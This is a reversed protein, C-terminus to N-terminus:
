CWRRCCKEHLGQTSCGSGEETESELIYPKNKHSLFHQWRRSCCCTGDRWGARSFPLWGGRAPQTATRAFTRRGAGRACVRHGHVYTAERAEDGRPSHTTTFSSVRAPPPRTGHERAESKPPHRGDVVETRFAQADISAPRCFCAKQAAAHTGLSPRHIPGAIELLAICLHQDAHASWLLCLALGITHTADKVAVDGGYRKGGSLM